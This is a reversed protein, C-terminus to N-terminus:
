EASLANDQELVFWGEYGAKILNRVIEKINADGKGLPTYLGALMADYYTVENKRVKDAM